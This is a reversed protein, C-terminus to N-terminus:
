WVNKSFNIGSLYLEDKMSVWFTIFTKGTNKNNDIYYYLKYESKDRSIEYGDFNIDNIQGYNAYQSQLYNVFESENGKEKLGDSLISYIYKYDGKQYFQIVKDAIKKADDLKKTEETQTKTNIYNINNALESTKNINDSIVKYESAQWKNDSKIFVLKIRVSENPFKSFNVDYEMSINEEEKNILNKNIKIYKYEKIDGLSQNINGQYETLQDLECLVTSSFNNYFKEYESESLYNMMKDGLSRVAIESFDISHFIIVVFIALSVILGLFGVLIKEKESM